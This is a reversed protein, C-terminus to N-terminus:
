GPVDGRIFTVKVTKISKYQENINIQISEVRVVLQSKRRNIQTRSFNFNQKSLFHQKSLRHQNSQWAHM